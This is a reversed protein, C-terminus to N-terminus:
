LIIIIIWLFIIAHHDICLMKVNKCEDSYFDIDALQFIM